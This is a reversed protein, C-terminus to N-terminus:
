IALAIGILVPWIVFLAKSKLSAVGGMRAARAANVATGLADQTVGAAIDTSQTKTVSATKSPTVTMTTGNANSPVTTHSSFAQRAAELASPAIPPMTMNVITFDATYVAHFISRHNSAPSSTPVFCICYVSGSSLAVDRPVKVTAHGASADVQPWLYAVVNDGSLLQVNVTGLAAARPEEPTDLWRLDLTREKASLTYWTTAAPKTPYLAAQATTALLALTLAATKMM